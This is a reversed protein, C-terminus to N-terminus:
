DKKRLREKQVKDGSEARGNLYNGDVGGAVM